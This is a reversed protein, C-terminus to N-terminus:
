NYIYRFCFKFYKRFLSRANSNSLIVKWFNFSFHYPIMAIPYSGQVCKLITLGKEWQDKKSFYMWLNLLIFKDRFQEWNNVEKPLYSRTELEAFITKELAPLKYAAASASVDYYVLPTPIYFASEFWSIARFWVDLDEGKILYKKFGQNQEFFDKRIITSSSTFLTNYDAKKFYDKIEIIKPNKSHEIPFSHTYTSGVIGVNNNNEIVFKMWWLYDEHWCDDADLFAIYPFKAERIGKNRAESVGLNEQKILKVGDGYKERILHWGGDTSGDDVIIIEFNQYSQVFVSDLTRM